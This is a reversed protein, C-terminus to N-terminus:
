KRVWLWPNDLITASRDHRIPFTCAKAFLSFDLGRGVMSLIGEGVVKLGSSNRLFGRKKTGHRVGPGAHLITQSKVLEERLRSALVWVMERRPKQVTGDLRDRRFGLRAIRSPSVQM